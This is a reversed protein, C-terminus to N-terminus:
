VGTLFILRTEDDNRLLKIGSQYSMDITWVFLPFFTNSKIKEPNKTGLLTGIRTHYVPRSTKYTVYFNCITSIVFDTTSIYLHIGQLETEHFWKVMCSNQLLKFKTGIWCSAFYSWSFNHASCFYFTQQWLGDINQRKICCDLIWILPVTFNIEQFATLRVWRFVLQLSLEM